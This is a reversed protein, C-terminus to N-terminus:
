SMPLLTHQGGNEVPFLRLLYLTSSLRAKFQWAPSPGLHWFKQTHITRCTLSFYVKSGPNQFLKHVKKMYIPVTFSYPLTITHWHSVVNNKFSNLNATLLCLSRWVRGESDWVSTELQSSSQQALNALCGRVPAEQHGLSDLRHNEM